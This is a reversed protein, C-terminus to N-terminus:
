EELRRVSNVYDFRKLAIIALQLQDSNSVVMSIEGKFFGGEGTITFSRINIGLGAICDTLQHIVGPGVDAGTVVVSTVFQSRVINGWEASLVKHSYNAFLNKANPCSMRHIKAGEKTIYAFIPDGQIPSCCTAYQYAYYAGSEGNIIIDQKSLAKQWGRGPQPVEAPPTEQDRRPAPKDEKPVLIQGEAKFHKTILNLKVMKRNIASLFELRDPYGYWKALMDANEEVGVKFQNQLKRALIEKGQRAEARKEDKLTARIRNRAKSTVVIKLWDESPKINKNTVIEVQDGNQLKYSFPQMVGNIRVVQCTSGLDSHISFAYDLGTAGEPLIRVDGKPTFVHVIKDSFITNQVDALMEVAGGQANELSERVEGLWNEFTDAKTTFGKVNKYKWHAAFGREAIEDMRETRIQVEVYRGEPGLVTVHLSEYGNPKPHSIWDKVREPVPKYRDTVLAYAQWCLMREVATKVEHESNPIDIVVRIAFLDFINEFPVNKKHIKEWISHISKARGFIRAQIGFQDLEEQIPAIFEAIYEDRLQKKEALQAKIRQFDDFHTIKLCIDLFETKIKYLGLQHALPAYVTETEAAIKAQKEPKMSGITRLNHLRDAMKILVVRVDTLMAKLVHRINAAQPSDSEHLSDLKTLGDVIDAIKSAVRGHKDTQMQGDPSLSPFKQRLEADTVDTDEVVDHLLACAAATPGLGIEEVCICAVSIPHTIYPEGSKRRQHKHAEVALEFSERILHQDEDSLPMKFTRLLKRYEGIIISRDEEPMDPMKAIVDQQPM